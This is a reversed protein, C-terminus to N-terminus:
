PLPRINVYDEAHANAGPAFGNYDHLAVIRADTAQFPHPDLCVVAPGGTKVDVGYGIVVLMHAVQVTQVGTAGTSPTPVSPDERIWSFAFPRGSDIEGKVGMEDLPSAERYNYTYGWQEFEPIWPSDCTPDVILIQNPGCCHNHHFAQNSQQCQRVLTGDLFELIMETSTSWCSYLGEQCRPVVPLVVQAGTKGTSYAPKSASCDASMPFEMSSQGNAQGTSSYANAQSEAAYNM